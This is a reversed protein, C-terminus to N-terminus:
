IEVKLNCLLRYFGINWFWIVFYNWIKGPVVFRLLISQEPTILAGRVTWKSGNASVSPKNDM